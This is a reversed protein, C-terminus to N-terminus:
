DGRTVMVVTDGGAGFARAVPGNNEPDPEAEAEDDGDGWEWGVAGGV